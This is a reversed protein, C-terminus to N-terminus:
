ERERGESGLPGVYFTAHSLLREITPLTLPDGSLHSTGAEVAKRLDILATGIVASEVM